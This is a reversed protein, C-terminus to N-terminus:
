TVIKAINLACRRFTMITGPQGNIDEGMTRTFVDTSIRSGHATHVRNHESAADAFVTRTHTASNQLAQLKQAHHEILIKIAIGTNLFVSVKRHNSCWSGPDLRDHHFGIFLKHDRTLTKCQNM